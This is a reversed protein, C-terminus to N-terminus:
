DGPILNKYAKENGVGYNQDIVDAIYKNTVRAGELADAM